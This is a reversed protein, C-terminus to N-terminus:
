LLNSKKIEKRLEKLNFVNFQAELNLCAKILKVYNKIKYSRLVSKFHKIYINLLRKNALNHETLTELFAQKFKM